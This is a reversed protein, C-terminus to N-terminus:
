ICQLNQKLYILVDNLSSVKCHKLGEADKQSEDSLLLNLGVGARNGAEMDSINDGIFISRKLDINLDRQAQLLMGPQPKRSFDDKLYKGLGATPHYPSFYVRAIPAGQELFKQCMWDTLESFQAETFYGRGIGAQNSIVVTKYNLNHAFRVLDFIGENFEFDDIKYIYGYDINIVGDRDLFLAPTLM